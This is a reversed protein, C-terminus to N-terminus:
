PVPCSPSATSIDRRNSKRSVVRQLGGDASAVGRVEWVGRKSGGELCPRMTSPPTKGPEPDGRLVAEFAAGSPAHLLRPWLHGRADLDGRYGARGQHPAPTGRDSSMSAQPGDGGQSAACFISAAMGADPNSLRVKALARWPASQMEPARWMRTTSRRAADASPASIVYLM